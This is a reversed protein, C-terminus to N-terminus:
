RVFLEDYVVGTTGREKYGQDGKGTQEFKGDEWVQGSFILIGNDRQFKLGSPNVGDPFKVVLQRKVGKNEWGEINDPETVSRDVTDVSFSFFDLGNLYGM